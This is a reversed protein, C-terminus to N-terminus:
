RREVSFAQQQPRWVLVWASGDKGKFDVRHGFVTRAEQILFKLYDKNTTKLEHLAAIGTEDGTLQM